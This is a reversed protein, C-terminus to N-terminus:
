TRSIARIIDESVRDYVRKALRDSIEDVRERTLLTGELPLPLVPTTTM